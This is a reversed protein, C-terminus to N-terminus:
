AEGPSPERRLASCSCPTVAAVGQAWEGERVLRAIEGRLRENEDCLAELWAPANAILDADATTLTDYYHCCGEDCTEHVWQEPTAKALAERIETLDPM